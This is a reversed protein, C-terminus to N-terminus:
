HAAVRIRLRQLAHGHQREQLQNAMPLRAALDNALWQALAFAAIWNLLSLVEYVLGRWAGLLLSALVVGLLIWDMALM